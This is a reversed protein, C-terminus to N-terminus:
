RTLLGSEYPLVFVPRRHARDAIIRPASGNTASGVMKETTM